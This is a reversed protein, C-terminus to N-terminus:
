SVRALTASPTEGFLRRYDRSYQGMHTFGCSRATRSVSTATSRLLASRSRSLRQSRVFALPTTGYTERFAYELTREAVGCDLALERLTVAHPFRQTALRCASNVAIRRTSGPMSDAKMPRSGAVAHRLLRALQSADVGQEPNVVQRMLVAVDADIVSGTFRRADLESSPLSLALLVSGDPVFFDLPAGAGAIVVEDDRLPLALVQVPTARSASLLLCCHGRRVTGRVVLASAARLRLTRPDGSSVGSARAKGHGPTVQIVEVRWGRFFNTLADFERTAM